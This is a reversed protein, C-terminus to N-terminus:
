LADFIQKSVKGSGCVIGLPYAWNKTKEKKQFGTFLFRTISGFSYDLLM